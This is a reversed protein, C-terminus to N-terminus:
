RGVMGLPPLSPMRTAQPQLRGVPSREVLSCRWRVSHRPQLPQYSVQLARVRRPRRAQGLVQRREVHVEFVRQAEAPSEARHFRSPRDNSSTLRRIFTIPVKGPSVLQRLRQQATSSRNMALARPSPSGRQRVPLQACIRAAWVACVGSECVAHAQSCRSPRREPLQRVGSAYGGVTLMSACRGQAVDM